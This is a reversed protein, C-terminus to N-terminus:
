QRRRTKCVYGAAPIPNAPHKIKYMDYVYVYIHVLFERHSPNEQRKEEEDQSITLFSYIGRGFLSNGFDIAMQFPIFPPHWFILYIKQCHYFILCYLICSYWKGCHGAHIIDLLWDSRLTRYCFSFLSMFEVTDSCVNSISFFNVRTLSLFFYSPPVPSASRLSVARLSNFNNEM